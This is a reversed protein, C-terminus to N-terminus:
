QQRDLFQVLVTGFKEERRVTYYQRVTQEMIGNRDYIRAHNRAEVWLVRDYTAALMRVRKQAERLAKEMDGEMLIVEHSAPVEDSLGRNHYYFIVEAAPGFAHLVPQDTRAIFMQAERWNEWWDNSSILGYLPVICMVALLVIAARACDVGWKGSMLLAGTAAFAPTAALMFRHTLVNIHFSLLFLMLAPMLWTLALIRGSESRLSVPVMVVAFGTILLRFFTELQLGVPMMLPYIQALLLDQLDKFIPTSESTAHSIEDWSILTPLFDQHWNMALAWPLASLVAIIFPLIFGRSKGSFFAYGLQVVAPFWSFIHVFGGIACSLAWKWHGRDHRMAKFFYGLAMAQMLALLGYRNIQWSQFIQEPLMSILAATVFGTKVGGIVHGAWGGALILAMGGLLHVTRLWILSESISKIMGLVWYYGPMRLNQGWTNLPEELLNIAMRLNQVEDIWLSLHEIKVVRILIGSAIIIAPVIVRPKCARIM